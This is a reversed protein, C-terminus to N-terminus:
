LKRDDDLEELWLFTIPELELPLIDITQDYPLLVMAILVVIMMALM